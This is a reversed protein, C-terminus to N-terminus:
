NLSLVNAVELTVTLPQNTPNRFEFVNRKDLTQKLSATQTTRKSDVKIQANSSQFSLLGFSLTLIVSALYNVTAKM